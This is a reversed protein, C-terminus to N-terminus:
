SEKFVAKCKLGAPLLFDPNPLEIRVGFTASAADIIKDVIKIKGQYSQSDLEPQISVSMGKKLQGYVESRMVVEVYLPDLSVLKAVPESGIYEGVSINRKVVLGNLPSYVTRQKLLANSEKLALEALEKETFLEDRELDSLLNKELLNQNRHVKREAFEARAKATLFAARQIASDLELLKQGKRVQDGREINVVKVVGPTQSSIEVQQSPELLCSLQAAAMDLAESSAPDQAYVTQTALLTCAMLLRGILVRSLRITQYCAKFLRM